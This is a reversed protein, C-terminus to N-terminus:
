IQLSTIQPRTDSIWTTEAPQTPTSTAMAVLKAPPHRGQYAYNM